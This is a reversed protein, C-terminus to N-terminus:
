DVMSKIIKIVITLLTITILYIAIDIDFVQFKLISEVFKVFLSLIDM